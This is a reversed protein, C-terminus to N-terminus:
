LPGTEPAVAPVLCEFTLTIFRRNHKSGPTYFVAKNVFFSVTKGGRGMSGGIGSVIMIFGLDYRTVSNFLTASTLSTIV